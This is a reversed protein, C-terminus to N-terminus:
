PEKREMAPQFHCFMLQFALPAQRGDRPWFPLPWRGRERQRHLRSRTLLGPDSGPAPHLQSVWTEWPGPHLAMSGDVGM